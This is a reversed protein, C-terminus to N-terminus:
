IQQNYRGMLPGPLALRKSPLGLTSSGARGANTRERNLAWNALPQNVGRSPSVAHPISRGLGVRPPAPPLNMLPGGATKVLNRPHAPTTAGPTEGANRTLVPPINRLIRPPRARSVADWIELDALTPFGYKPTAWQTRSFLRACVVWMTFGNGV